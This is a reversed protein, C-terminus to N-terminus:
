AMEKDIAQQAAIIVNNVDDIQLDEAIRNAIEKTYIGNDWRLSEKLSVFLPHLEPKNTPLAESSAAYSLITMQAGLIAFIDRLSTGYVGVERNVMQSFEISLREETLKDM